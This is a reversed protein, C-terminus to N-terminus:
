KVLVYDVDIRRQHACCTAWYFKPGETQRNATVMKSGYKKRHVHQNALLLTPGLGGGGGGGAGRPDLGGGM